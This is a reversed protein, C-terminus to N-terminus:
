KGSTQIITYCAGVTSLKEFKQFCDIMIPRLPNKKTLKQCIKKILYNHITNTNFDQSIVKTSGGGQTGLSTSNM